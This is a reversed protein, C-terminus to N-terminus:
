PHWRSRHGEDVPDRATRLGVYEPRRQRDDRDRSAPQAGLLQRRRLLNRLQHQRPLHGDRHPQRPGPDHASRQHRTRHRRAAGRRRLRRRQRQVAGLRGHPWQRSEACGDRHLTIPDGLTAPSASPSVTTTTPIATVTFADSDNAAELGGGAAFSTTITANRPSGNVPLTATAVGSGDTVANVSGGGGSLAFTITRGNVPGGTLDTLQASVNATGTHPASTVGTYTLTSCNQPTVVVTAAGTAGGASVVVGWNARSGNKGLGDSQSPVVLTTSYSGSPGTATSASIGSGPAIQSQDLLVSVPTGTAFTSLQGTVTVTGGACTLSPTVTASVTTAPAPMSASALNRTLTLAGGDLPLVLIEKADNKHAPSWWIRDSSVGDNGIATIKDSPVNGIPVSVTETNVTSPGVFPLTGVFPSSGTGGLSGADYTFGGNYDITTNNQWSDGNNLPFDRTRWGPHPTLTLDIDATIDVTIISVQAEGDIHQQQSEELLALDSVRVHRTGNVTGSFNKLTVNQGDLDASGGGSNVTGTIQMEYADQGEFSVIGLNKYTVTENLNVNIGEGDNYNFTTAYTWSWNPAWAAVDHGPAQVASAPAAGGAVALLGALMAMISLLALRARSTGRSHANMSRAFDTTAGVRM